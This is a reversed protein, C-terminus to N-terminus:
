EIMTRPTKGDASANSSVSAPPADAGDGANAAVGGLPKVSSLGVGGFTVRATGGLMMTVNSSEPEIALLKM